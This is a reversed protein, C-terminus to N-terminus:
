LSSIAVACEGSWMGGAPVSTRMTTWPVERTVSVLNLEHKFNDVYVWGERYWDMTLLFLTGALIQMYGTAM